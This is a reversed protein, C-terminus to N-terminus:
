FLDLQEADESGDSKASRHRSFREVLDGSEGTRLTTKFKVLYSDGRQEALDLAVFADLAQRVWPIRPFRRDREERGESGYLRQLESALEEVTVDFAYAKLEQDFQIESVMSTFLDNWLIVMTYETIPKDDYFKLQREPLAKLLEITQTLRFHVWKIM